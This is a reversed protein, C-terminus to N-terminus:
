SNPRIAVVVASKDTASALPAVKVEIRSADMGCTQSLQQAVNGARVAAKPWGADAKAGNDVIAQATVKVDNDKLTAGIACLLKKGFDTLDGSTPVLAIPAALTIRLVERERVMPVRVRGSLKKISTELSRELHEARTTLATVNKEESRMQSHLQELEKTSQNLTTVTTLLQQRFNAAETSTKKYESQLLDHARYLPLYFSALFSLAAVIVVGSFIMWGRGRRPAFAAPQLDNVDAALALKEWDKKGM